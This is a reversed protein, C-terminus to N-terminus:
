RTMVWAVMLVALSMVPLLMASMWDYRTASAEHLVPMTGTYGRSLMALHVREGREYSRIFLAGASKSITPWSKIGTAEFGRSQRAVQMRHMEDTVVQSYRLMFAAIQVLAKPVHMRELGLLIERAPTTSALLVSAFVGLTGKILIGWAAMLGATSFSFWLVQVFPAPGFFPMLVAFFVFPVEVVMRPLVIRWSLRARAAVVILFVAYVAFAWFAERPTAVVIFIFLVLAVIKTQAPLEHIVSHRHVYLREGVDHGHSHEDRTVKPLLWKFIIFSLALVVLVGIVGAIGVSLRDSEVGAVGYDALASDATASDQATEIFGQDTAVRELGDPSSSAYFSVFGAIFLSLLLGVSIVWAASRAGSAKARSPDIRGRLGYVLDPRVASVAAVTLATIIGEGIGILVHVSVMATLVTRVDFTGTGGLAYEATFAMASAPVTLFGALFASGIVALKSTGAVKTLWRFVIWAILSPVLGMNIINLGMASLGGDAFILGQVIIVVSVALAGAYPGVLIVALAGGLLHGSTGAAVPFNIMQMAFVFVAVLGALPATKEDLQYRAGRLCVAIGGAAIVGGAIAVPADIFGDPIHM